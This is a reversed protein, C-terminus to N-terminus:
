HVNFEAGNAIEVADTIQRTVAGTQRVRAEAPLGVLAAIEEGTMRAKVGDAAGFVKGNVTVSLDAAEPKAAKPANTSHPVNAHPKNM